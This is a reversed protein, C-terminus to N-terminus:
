KLVKKFIRKRKHQVPNFYKWQAQIKSNTELEQNSETFRFGKAIAAHAVEVVMMLDVGQGRYAKKIGALYFDLVDNKKLARIIHWWGLPFLSGNAKQFARSLSPMALMFGVLEDKENVVMQLLDKDVFSFYKKIFYNVQRETLPVTGYIEEFAEDILQFLEKGRNLIDKKKTYRLLRLGSREKIREALRLLKEPFASMEPVQCRFEVYDIEKGYGLDEVLKQYYPFNYYGAITPLQDFGEVVMGQPDLDCFGHPGTVTELGLERAWGEVAQFLAAAVDPDDPADFWGFRLNKTKYKKNAVRSHIAAIRGAPKDDKYALFLRSDANEYAPNKEKDFIEMDDHILQPIWLPNDKYMAFPLMVFKKLEKKDLVEKVTVPM